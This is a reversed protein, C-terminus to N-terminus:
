RNRLKLLNKYLRTLPLGVVNYYDGSIKEIFLCGFDEQIGYAGAKDLPNYNKVYYRIEKESLERFYVKTKECDIIEEGTRSNIICIGTYVTHMRGSLTKLYKVAERNDKPKHFVFGDLFVVTDAAIIIKDNFKEAVAKAKIESNHRVLKEPSAYNLEVEKVESEVVRFRIGLQRLLTRRRASKSALIYQEKFINEINM